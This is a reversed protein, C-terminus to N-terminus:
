RSAGTANSTGAQRSRLRVAFSEGHLDDILRRPRRSGGIAFEFGRGYVYVRAKQMACEAGQRWAASMM